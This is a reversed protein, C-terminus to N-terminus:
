MRQRSCTDAFLFLYDAFPFPIRSLALPGVLTNSRVM